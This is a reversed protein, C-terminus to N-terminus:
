TLRAYALATYTSGSPSLRSSFLTVGAVALTPMSSAIQWAAVTRRVSRAGGRRWRALTLHAHFPRPERPVGLRELRSTAEGHVAAVGASGRDLGLWLVHPAGRDPFTGITGFRVEFPHITFDARMVEVIAPVAAEAIEGLFVLTLHMNAPRVWNIGPEHLRRRLREQEAAVAERVGDSLEIAAFLRM